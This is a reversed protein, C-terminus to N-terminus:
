GCRNMELYMHFPPPSLTKLYEPFINLHRLPVPKKLSPIHRAPRTCLRVFWYLSRSIWQGGCDEWLPSRSVSWKTYVSAAQVWYWMVYNWCSGKEQIPFNSWSLLVYQVGLYMAKHEESWCIERQYSGWFWIWKSNLACIDHQAKLYVILGCWLVSCMAGNLVFAYTAKEEEM